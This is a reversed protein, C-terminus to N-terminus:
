SESVAELYKADSEVSSPISLFGIQLPVFDTNCVPSDYFFYKPKMKLCCSHIFNLSITSSPDLSKFGHDPDTILADM